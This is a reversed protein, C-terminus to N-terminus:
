YNIMDDNIDIGHTGVGMEKLLEVFEGRGCGIDLVNRCHEFFQVFALQRRKINDRSSRFKDEFAVYDMDEIKKSENLKLVIHNQVTVVNTNFDKQKWIMPDVYRRIEGHVLGRGKTLLTGIVPRHSSIHYSTHQIDSNSNIYQIARQANNESEHYGEKENKDDKKKKINERIHSMINEVNIEEDKKVDKVSMKIRWQDVTEM